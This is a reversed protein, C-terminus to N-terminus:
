YAGNRSFILFVTKYLIIIDNLISHHNVYRIDYRMAESYNEPTCRVNIKSYGTLGPKVLLRRYNWNKYFKVEYVPHPRPGVLSMEGILINFLQPLEDLSSQRLFKGIPTIRQDIQKKYGLVQAASNDEEPKATLLKKIYEQHEKESADTRMTRFKIIKFIKGRYGVRDQLFFVPGPSTLKIVLGLILMIPSTIIIGIASGLIDIIRKSVTEVAMMARKQLNWAFHVTNGFKPKKTDIAAPTFWDNVTLVNTNPDTILTSFLSSFHHHSKKNVEDNQITGAPEDPYSYISINQSPFILELLNRVENLSNLKTILRNLTKRAHPYSTDPLLIIIKHDSTLSVSDTERINILLLQLLQELIKIKRAGNFEGNLREIGQFNFVLVSFSYDIREARRKELYLRQKLASLSCLNQNKHESRFQSDDILTDIWQQSSDM